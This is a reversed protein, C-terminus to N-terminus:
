GFMPMRLVLSSFQRLFLLRLLLFIKPYIGANWRRPRASGPLALGKARLDGAWSVAVVQNTRGAVTWDRWRWIREGRGTPWGAMRFMSHALLLTGTTGLAM